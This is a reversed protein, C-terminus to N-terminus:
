QDSQMFIVYFYPNVAIDLKHSQLPALRLWVLDFNVRKKTLYMANISNRYHNDFILTGYRGVGIKKELPFYPPTDSKLFGYSTGRPIYILCSGFNPNIFIKNIIHKQLKIYIESM